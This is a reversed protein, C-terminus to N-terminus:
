RPYGTVVRLHGLICPLSDNNIDCSASILNFKHCMRHIPSQSLVNSRPLTLSFTPHHRAGVRPVHFSIKELLFPCDIKSNLLKFLFSVLQSDRRVTLPLEGFRTLVQSHELGRPPYTGDERFILYKLFRRQVSEVSHSHCIYIPSWVASGYDLKSRVFSYFLLKFTSVNSFHRCNRLIFGLVRSADAVLQDIHPIFSFNVDFVVGLDKITELRDLSIGNITYNFQIPNKTRSYSIVQM